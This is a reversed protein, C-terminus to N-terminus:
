PMSWLDTTTKLLEAAEEEAEPMCNGMPIALRARPRARVPEALAPHELHAPGEMLLDQVQDAKHLYFIMEVVEEARDGLVEM